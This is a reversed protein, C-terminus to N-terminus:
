PRCRRGATGRIRPSARADRNEHRRDDRQRQRRHHARPEQPMPGVLPLSPQVARRLRREVPHDREVASGQLPHEPMLGRRKSTATAVSTASPRERRRRVWPSRGRAPCRRSGPRRRLTASSRREPSPRAGAPAPPCDDEFSGATSLRDDNMPMSPVFVVILLPRMWILRLGSSSRLILALSTIRRSCGVSDVLTSPMVSKMCGTCSRVTSSRTLRVCYWYLRSSGSGCSSPAQTGRNTARSCVRGTSRSTALSWCFSPSCVRRTISRSM